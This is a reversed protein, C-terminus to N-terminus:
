SVQLVLKHLCVNPLEIKIVVTIDRPHFIFRFTRFKTLLLSSFKFFLLVSLYCTYSTSSGTSM